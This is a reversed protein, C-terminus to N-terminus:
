RNVRRWAWRVILFDVIAIVALWILLIPVIVIMGVGGGESQTLFRLVFVGGIMVVFFLLADLLLLPFVLLDALALPLGTIRGNSRRIDGIALGGMVPTGVLSTVGLAVVFFGLSAILWNFGAVPARRVEVPVPPPPIVLDDIGTVTEAAAPGSIRQTQVPLILVAAALIAPILLLAWVMGLIAKKSVRTKTSSLNKSEVSSSVVTPADDSSKAKLDPSGTELGPVPPPESALNEVDSKIEGADQYRREPEKELTKLVVDDVREDLTGKESPSAFRGIPLEGTLMEYFVVGLSYIDARHDVQHAGEMQEPAMYKVTGMMHETATLTWEPLESGLLRALGFDAIKVKGSSDLLINEPKIDRHVLGKGHAYHLADCIQPVVQLVSDPNMDGAKIAKRLDSGDVYEMIIYFMGDVEGFDHIGVIHPHNLMALAKAERSFREAFQPDESAQPPLIKIAVLRELDKQKAKYVAGMGGRGLLELLEYRPFSVGLDGLEPPEWGSNGGTSVLAPDAELGKSMLGKPDLGQLEDLAKSSDSQSDPEAHPNSNETM